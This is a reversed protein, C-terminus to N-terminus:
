PLSQSRQLLMQGLEHSLGGIEVSERASNFDEEIQRALQKVQEMQDTLTKMSSATAAIEESLDANEQALRIVLPHNGAVERRTAEADALAQDAEEQRKRAILEELTKVRKRPREAQATANDLRAELLKRRDPQSLLEQDLAAIESRLAQYRTEQAWRRAESMVPGEDARLPLKLQASTDELQSKAEALRTAVQPPRDKIEQLGKATEAISTKIAALSAKEQQLILELQQM